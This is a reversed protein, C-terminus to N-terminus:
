CSCAQASAAGFKNPLSPTLKVDVLEEQKQSSLAEMGPLAAAIKRFLAQTFGWWVCIGTGWEPTKEKAVLRLKHRDLTSGCSSEWMLDPCKQMARTERSSVKINFGAKASTEIFLV